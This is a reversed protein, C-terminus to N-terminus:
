FYVKMGPGFPKGPGNGRGPGEVGENQALKKRATRTENATIATKVATRM